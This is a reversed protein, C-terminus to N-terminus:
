NLTHFCYEVCKLVVFGTVFRDVILVAKELNKAIRQSYFQTIDRIIIFTKSQEKMVIMQSVRSLALSLRLM